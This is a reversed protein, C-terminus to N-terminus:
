YAKKIRDMARQDDKEKLDARKDYLKKGQALAIEVKAYGNQNIFLRLAVITFGKTKM